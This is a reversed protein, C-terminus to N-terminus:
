LMTYDRKLLTVNRLHTGGGDDPRHLEATFVPAQVAYFWFGLFFTMGVATLVEFRVCYHTFFCDRQM